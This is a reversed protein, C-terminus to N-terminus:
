QATVRNRPASRGDRRYREFLNTLSAVIEPHETYRNNVERIDRGLHFLQGAPKAPDYPIPEKSAGGGHQGLILKWNGRRIAFVGRYSDTVIADRTAQRSPQDLLAGLFSFSDEGADEPL